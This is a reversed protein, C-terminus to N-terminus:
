PLVNYTNGVAKLFISYEEKKSIANLKIINKKGLVLVKLQPFCAQTLYKCEKNGLYVFDIDFMFYQHISHVIPVM